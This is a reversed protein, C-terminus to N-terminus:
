AMLDILSGLAREDAKLVGADAQVALRQQLSDVLANIVNVGPDTAVASEAISQADNALAGFGRDIGTLATEIVSAGNIEAVSNM